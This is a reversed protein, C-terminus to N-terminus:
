IFISAKLFTIYKLFYIGQGRLYLLLLEWIKADIQLSTLSQYSFFPSAGLYSRFGM